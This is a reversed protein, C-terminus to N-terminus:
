RAFIHRLDACIALRMATLIRLNSRLGRGFRSPGEERPKVPVPVTAFRAGRRLAALALETGVSRGGDFRGHRRYLEMRYAKVGCLIDDVGYRLKTYRGFLWESFRATRPRLGLVLDARGAAIPALMGALLGAEFQGDADFTVVADAALTEARAFGAELAREYGQNRALRVVTAGAEGALAATADTSGDDVVIPQGYPLVQQVVRAISAAENHAPLVIVTRM